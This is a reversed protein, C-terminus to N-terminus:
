TKAASPWTSVDSEVNRNRSRSSISLSRTACPYTTSPTRSAGSRGPFSNTKRARRGHGSSNELLRRVRPRGRGPLRHVDRPLQRYELQPSWSIGPRKGAVAREFSGVPVEFFRQRHVVQGCVEANRGRVGSRHKASRSSMPGPAHNSELRTAAARTYLVADSSLDQGYEKRDLQYLKWSLQEAFGTVLSLPSRALRETVAAARLDADPDPEPPRCDEILQWFADESM